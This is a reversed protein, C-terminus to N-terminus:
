GNQLIQPPFTVAVPQGQIEWEGANKCEQHCIGRILKNKQM